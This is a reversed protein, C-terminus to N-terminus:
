LVDRAGCYKSAPGCIYCFFCCITAASHGLCGHPPSVGVWALGNWCQDIEMQVPWALQFGQWQDRLGSWDISCSNVGRFAGRVGGVVLLWQRVLGKMLGPRNVMTRKSPGFIKQSPHSPHHHLVNREVLLAPPSFPPPPPPNCGVSPLNGGRNETFHPVNEHLMQLMQANQASHCAAQTRKCVGSDGPQLACQQLKSAFLPFACFVTFGSRAPQCWKDDVGPWRKMSHLDLGPMTPSLPAKSPTTAISACWTHVADPGQCSCSTLCRHVM